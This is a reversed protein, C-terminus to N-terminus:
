IKIVTNGKNPVQLNIIKLVIDIEKALSSINANNFFDEISVEVGFSKHTRKLLTMAKLSDGGLEFFDDLIGIQEYGFFTQWLQCLKKETDSSPAVYDVNLTPRDIVPRDDEIIDQQTQKTKKVIDKLVQNPEHVSVIVQPIKKASFSREFVEILDKHGIRGESIGDLDVSFWNNLEEKKSTVFTDIFKNAVAYAGYTLGGIVSSLSSTIWVFDFNHRKHAEYINLVGNVKPDFQLKAIEPTLNEIPKFTKGDVNGATHIIGSIKGHEDEITAITKIFEKQNSVDTNYYYVEANSDRYKKLKQIKKIASANITNNKLVEDWTEETPIPSRGILIVKSQYQKCLHTTIVEGVEGLGGTIVYTKNPQVYENQDPLELDLQDFFAVWRHENRYAVNITEYNYKLEDVINSILKPNKSAQDADISCSFINPNEQSCISALYEVTVLLANIKEKGLIEYNHNSLFTIKKQVGEQHAIVRKSLYLLTSFAKVHEEQNKGKLEWNFIIQKFNYGKNELREFLQEFDQENDPNVEYFSENIEDYENGKRVEIIRGGENELQDKVSSMLLDGESFILYDQNLELEERKPQLQRKKWNSSYFWQSIHRKTEGFVVNDTLQEFPNVYFDLKYNDFSYTPVSIKCRTEEEYYEKWNIDIGQSWIQGLSTTVFQNDDKQEKPHRILTISTSNEFSKTANKCFSSLAKGPGVEIFVTNGKDLLFDVGQSFNVTDRLHNVWYKPSTAEESKILKGTTNSVFDLKPTMLNVKLLEQEYEDLIDDMMQSHFAHSTKLKSFPIKESKVIETFKAICEQNGSVVCSEKTNIAAVSVGEILLPIIADISAGIALMDGKDVKNMLRARQTIIGLADEFSFVDAICAAVYEGLSHGIMYKPHIGWHMLLRAFAYEILFLIPQTYYTENILNKDVDVSSIYGLVAGYDKGTKNTLIDFGENIISKFYPEEEYVGKAMEFYQSGQGPFMFVTNKRRTAQVPQQQKKEIRELQILAESKDKCVIFNRHKFDTKGVKLTYAFDSLDFAEENKFHEKLKLTFKELSTKSKASYPLLQYTRSSSGKEVIPSEELILHVNTGGIGLSSVGARLPTEGKQKWEQLSSNVYFPGSDFSIEPNPQKFNLSPPLMKNQLALGTKILGAIGAATDLHGLNTKVSGLACQHETDFSFANNLAEVEIPDGLKTGTGHGEVYSITDYSIGAVRQALKICDAQGSISPATYGVKRKGDNNVASARIVAYINDKDNLAEELRKLVVVGGGEGAVTGTSDKDFARCYGDKSGIAGVQYQYGIEKSTKLNAGGALAMSCERMLLARCALHTAALSSSCATDIFYSPGTLNLNYSILSSIQEKSSIQSLFFPDVSENQNMMTHAMWNKNESAALYLGIKGKYKSTDCASDELAKWVQEHLLRIQPDMLNAEEKTYGFFAYDFTDSNEVFSKLGVFNTDNITDQAIGLDLMEEESYFDLMEDGGILNKWFEQPTESKSFACSMGIIAIDKKRNEKKM